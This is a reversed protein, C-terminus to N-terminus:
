DQAVREAARARRELDVIWRAVTEDPETRTAQYRNYHELAEAPRQLYIDLLIGLNLHAIANGPDSALTRKYAAEAGAFDGQGRLLIGLENNAPAFEPAIAVAQELAARAEPMRGNLKHILALNVYPGPFGPEELILAELEAQARAWDDAHMAVLASDYSRQVKESIEDLNPEISLDIQPAADATSEVQVVDVPASRAPEVGRASERDDGDATGGTSACGTLVCALVAAAISNACHRSM